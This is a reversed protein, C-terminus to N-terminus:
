QARQYVMGVVGSSFVRASTLKLTSTTGEKFIRKGSGLVVPYVLLNIQDVLDHQILTQVLTASGHVLINMGQQQKLANIEEVLDGKIITSNTWNAQSLTTSAVHKPLTNMRDGFGQEDTRGPWAEAFGEYTVRGLLMADSSFLEDYKFRAIEDNWYQATWRPEEMIGDLSLFTTVVLKRM